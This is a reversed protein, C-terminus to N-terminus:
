EAGEEDDYPVEPPLEVEKEKEEEKIVLNHDVLTKEVSMSKSIVNGLTNLGGWIVFEIILIGILLGLGFLVGLAGKALLVVMIIDLIASGVGLLSTLIKIFAKEKQLDM